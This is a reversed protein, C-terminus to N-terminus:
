APRPRCVAVLRNALRSLVCAIPVSTFRSVCLYQRLCTHHLQDIMQHAHCGAGGRVPPRVAFTVSNPTINALRRQSSHRHPPAHRRAFPSLSIPHSVVRATNLLLLLLLLLLM